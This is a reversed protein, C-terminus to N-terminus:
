EHFNEWSNDKAGSFCRQAFIFRFVPGCLKPLPLFVSSELRQIKMFYEQNKLLPVSSHLAVTIIMEIVELLMATLPYINREVFHIIIYHYFM